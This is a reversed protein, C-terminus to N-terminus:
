LRADAGLSKGKVAAAEAPTVFIVAFRQKGDALPGLPKPVPIFM